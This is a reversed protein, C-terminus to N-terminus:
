LLFRPIHISLNPLLFCHGTSFLQRGAYILWTCSNRNLRGEKKAHSVGVRERRRRRNIIINPGSINRKNEVKSCRETSDVVSLCDVVDKSKTWISVVLSRRDRNRLDVGMILLFCHWSFLGKGLRRYCFPLFTLQHRYVPPLIGFLPHLVALGDLDWGPELSSKLQGFWCSVSGLM